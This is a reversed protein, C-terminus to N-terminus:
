FADTCTSLQISQIVRRYTMRNMFLETQRTHGASNTQISNVKMLFAITTICLTRYICTPKSERREEEQLNKYSKKYMCDKSKEVDIV